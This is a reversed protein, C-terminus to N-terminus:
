IGGNHTEASGRKPPKNKATTQVNAVWTRTQQQSHIFLTADSSCKRTSLQINSDIRQEVLCQVKSVMLQAFRSPARCNGIFASLDRVDSKVEM